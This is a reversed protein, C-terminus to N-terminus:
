GRWNDLKERPRANVSAECLLRCLCLGGREYTHKIASCVSALSPAANCQQFDRMRGGLSTAHLNNFCIIFKVENSSVTKLLTRNNLAWNPFHLMEYNNCVHQLSYPVTVTIVPATHIGLSIVCCAMHSKWWTPQMHVNLLLCAAAAPIGSARLQAAGSQPLRYTGVPGPPMCQGDMVDLIVGQKTMRRWGALRVATNPWGELRRGWQHNGGHMLDYSKSFRKRAKSSLFFVRFYM